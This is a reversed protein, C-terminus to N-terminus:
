ETKPSKNEEWQTCMWLRSKNKRILNDNNNADDDRSIDKEIQLIYFANM